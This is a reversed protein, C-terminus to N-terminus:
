RRKISRKVSRKVSRKGQKRGTTRRRASGISRRKSFKRKIRRNVGGGSYVERDLGKNNPDRFTQAPLPPVAKLPQRCTKMHASCGARHQYLDKVVEDFSPAPKTYAIKHCVDRFYKWFEESDPSVRTKLKEYEEHLAKHEQNKLKNNILERMDYYFRILGCSPMKLYRDINLAEFFKGYSERCFKCPLVEGLSRFFEKYQRDKVSKPTENLDYGAAIFFLGRHLPPGWISSNM